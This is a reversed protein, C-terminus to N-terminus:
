HPKFWHPHEGIARFLSTETTRYDDRQASIQALNYWAAFPEEADETSRMASQAAIALAQDRVNENQTKRAVEMWNRSYWIDASTGPLHWFWYEEYKATAARLNPSEMLRRTAELTHDAMVIRVALYLMGMALFPAAVSLIANSRPEGPETSLGAALAILLHPFNGRHPM